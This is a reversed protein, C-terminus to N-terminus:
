RISGQINNVDLEAVIKSKSPTQKTSADLDTYVRSPCGLGVWDWQSIVSASDGNSGTVLSEAGGHQSRTEITGSAQTLYRENNLNLGYAYMPGDFELSGDNIWASIESSAGNPTYASASVNASNVNSIYGDQIAGTAGISDSGIVLSVAGAAQGVDFMSCWRDGAGTTDILPLYIRNRKEASASVAAGSGDANTAYTNAYITDFKRSSVDQLAVAGTGSLKPQISASGAAAIQSFDLTGDTIGAFAGASSGDSGSATASTTASDVNSFYGDQIAGTLFIPIEPNSGIVLSGVGAAQGIDFVSRREDGSGVTDILPLYIRNRKDASASVAAGSGDANMAYTNAYITDFKRSSVDQLAVAGSGSVIPQYGASGAATIQSFDLTGDTIGAFAGASSEDSGSASAATTASNVNSIYGNQGAIAGSVFIDNYTIQGAAADQDVGFMSHGRGNQTGPLVSPECSQTGQANASVTAGSGDTNTAYTNAYITDFKRSFVSQSAGIGSVVLGSSEASLGVNSSGGVSQITTGIVQHVQVGDSNTFGTEVAAGNGDSDKGTLLAYGYSGDMGLNQELISPDVPDAGVSEVSNYDGEQTIEGGVVGAYSLTQSGDPNVILTIQYQGNGNADGAYYTEASVSTICVLIAGFVLLFVWVRGQYWEDKKM